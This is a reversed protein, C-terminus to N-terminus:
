LDPPSCLEALGDELDKRIFELVAPTNIPVDGLAKKLERTDLAYERHDISRRCLFDQAPNASILALMTAALDGLPALDISGTCCRASIRTGKGPESWLSFCGGSLEAAMKFLPIGMGTGRTERTTFFPDAAQSATKKDMGKGNDSISIDLTRRATSEALTVAVLTAGARLSNQALDLIHLSLEQM